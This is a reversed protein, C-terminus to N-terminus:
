SFIPKALPQESNGATVIGGATQPTIIQAASRPKLTRTYNELLDEALKYDCFTVNSRLYKFEARHDVNVSMDPFLLPIMQIGMEGPQQGAVVNLVAPGFIGVTDSDPDAEPDVVGLITRGIADLYVVVDFSAYDPIEQETTTEESM